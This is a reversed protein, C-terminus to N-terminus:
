ERGIRVREEGVPRHISFDKAALAGAGAVTDDVKIDRSKGAVLERGYYRVKALETQEHDDREWAIEDLKSRVESLWGYFFSTRAGREGKLYPSEVLMQRWAAEMARWVVVHAYQALLVRETPGFYRVRYSEDSVGIRTELVPEVLFAEKIINVMATMHIPPKKSKQIPIDVSENTYESVEHEEVNYKRMMAQAQRLAAAAENANPSKSLALCKKIKEIAREKDM